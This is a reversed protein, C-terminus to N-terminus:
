QEKDACLVVLKVEEEEEEEEEGVEGEEEKRKLLTEVCVIRSSVINALLGPQGQVCLPWGTEPKWTSSNFAQAVM